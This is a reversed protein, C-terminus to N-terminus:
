LSDPQYKNNAIFSASLTHIFDMENVEGVKLRKAEEKYHEFAESKIEILELEIMHWLFLALLNGLNLDEKHVKGKYATIIKGKM